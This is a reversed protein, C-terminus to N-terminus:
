LVAISFIIALSIQKTRPIMLRWIMPLPIILIVLDTIADIIALALFAGGIDACHGGSISKDWNYAIPVCFAWTLTVALISWCFVLGMTAYIVFRLFM